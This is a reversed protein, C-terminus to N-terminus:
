FNLLLFFFLFFLNRVWYPHFSLCCVPGIKQGIIGDHYRIESLVEGRYNMVKVGNNWSGSFLIM